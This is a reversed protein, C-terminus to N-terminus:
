IAGIAEVKGLTEHRAAEAALRAVSEADHPQERLRARRRRQREAATMAVKGIPPRGGRLPRGGSPIQPAVGKQPCPSSTVVQPSAAALAERILRALKVHGLEESSGLQDIAHTRAM